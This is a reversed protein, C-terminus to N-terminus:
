AGREDPRCSFVVTYDRDKLKGQLAFQLEIMVSDEAIQTECAAKSQFADGERPHETVAGTAIMTLVAFAKFM